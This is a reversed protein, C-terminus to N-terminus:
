GDVIRTHTHYQEVRGMGQGNDDKSKSIILRSLKELINLIILSIKNITRQEGIYKEREERM